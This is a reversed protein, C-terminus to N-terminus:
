NCPEWRLTAYNWVIIVCHTAPVVLSRGLLNVTWGSATSNILFVVDPSGGTPGGTITANGTLNIFRKNLPDITLDVSVDATYASSALKNSPVVKGLINTGVTPASIVTEVFLDGTVTHDAGYIDGVGFANKNILPANAFKDLETRKASTLWNHVALLNAYLSDVFNQLYGLKTSNLLLRDATSVGACGIAVPHTSTTGPITSPLGRVNIYCDNPDASFQSEAGQMIEVNELCIGASSEISREGILLTLSGNRIVARNCTIKANLTLNKGNLDIYLVEDRSISSSLTADDTMVLTKSYDMAHALADSLNTSTPTVATDAVFASLRVVDTLLRDILATKTKDTYIAYCARGPEVVITEGTEVYEVVEKYVGHPVDAVSRYIGSGAPTEPLNIDDGAGVSTAPRLKVNKGTQPKGDSTKLLQRTVRDGM